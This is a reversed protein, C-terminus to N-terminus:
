KCENFKLCPYQILKNINDQTKDIVSYLYYRFGQANEALKKNIQSDQLNDLLRYYEEFNHLGKVTFESLREMWGKLLKPAAELRRNVWDRTGELIIKPFEDQTENVDEPQRTTEKNQKVREQLKEVRKLIGNKVNEDARELLKKLEKFMHILTEADTNEVATKFSKVDEVLELIDFKVENNIEDQSKFYNSVTEAYTEGRKKFPNKFLKAENVTVGVVLILVLTLNM